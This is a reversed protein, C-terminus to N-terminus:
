LSNTIKSNNRVQHKQKMAYARNLTESDIQMSRWVIFNASNAVNGAVFKANLNANDIETEFEFRFNKYRTSAILPSQFQQARRSLLSHSNEIMNFRDSTLQLSDIVRDSHLWSSNTDTNVIALSVVNDGLPESLEGVGAGITKINIKPIASEVGIAERWNVDIYSDTLTPTNTTGYWTNLCTIDVILVDDNKVNIPTGLDLTFPYLYESSSLLNAFAPALIFEQGNFFMSELALVNLAGNYISHTFGSRQLYCSVRINEWIPAPTGSAGGVVASLELVQVTKNKTVLKDTGIKIQM